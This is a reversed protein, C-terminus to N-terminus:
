ILWGPAVGENNYVDVGRRWPLGSFGFDPHSGPKVAMGAASPSMPWGELDKRHPFCANQDGRRGHKSGRCRKTAATLFTPRLAPQCAFHRQVIGDM